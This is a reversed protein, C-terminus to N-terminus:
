FDKSMITNVNRSLFLDCDVMALDTLWALYNSYSVHLVFVVSNQYQLNFYTGFYLHSQFYVRNMVVVCLIITFPMTM